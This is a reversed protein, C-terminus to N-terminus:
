LYKEIDHTDIKLERLQALTQPTLIPPKEFDEFLDWPFNDTDEKAGAWFKLTDSVMRTISNWAEQTLIYKKDNIIITINNTASEM